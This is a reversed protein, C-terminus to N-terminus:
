SPCSLTPESSEPGIIEQIELIKRLRSLLTLLATSYGYFTTGAPWFGAASARVRRQAAVFQRLDTSEITSFRYPPKMPDPVLRGLIDTGFHSWWPTSIRGPSCSLSIRLRRPILVRSTSSNLRAM